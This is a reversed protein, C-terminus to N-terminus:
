QRQYFFEMKKICNRGNQMMPKRKLTLNLKKVHTIAM